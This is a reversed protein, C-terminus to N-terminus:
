IGHHVFDEHVRLAVPRSSNEVDVSVCALRVFDESARDDEARLRLLRYSNKEVRRGRLIGVPQAIGTANEAM